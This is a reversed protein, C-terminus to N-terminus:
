RKTQFETSNLLAWLIDEFAETRNGTKKIYVRCKELERDTPKRALTRLYVMQLADDDQPFATLIRALLNSGKAQIRANVTPNNMLLLAQPISGEVEDAKTSPDFGFEEKFLGELGLRNGYPGAAPPRPGLGPGAELRGLVGVLSEWLADPGLRTPYAAAFHLHAQASDGPRVQRQYTQSNTITRFLGKMDYNSGRFGAALRVLVPAFVAEKQPGMDDVPQYFSQGLLEGWVRNVYAGAFWYNNKDVVADALAKRRERDGLNEGAAKGDLFRPQMVTSKRPDDKAPMEHEGRPRSTLEFGVLMQKGPDRMPRAQVRAFYATFEHFQERKWHDFPHDHCQACQIQIGLFIRATEAAQEETAGNGIHKALFYAAGNKGPEDFRIAGDATIMARALEDWGKNAQLQETMWADFAPVLTRSRVDTLRASMVERWYRAWHRAYEEGDLLRDIVKARKNPTKDALFDTVDAPVPLEGTLDLYVRRLFQEDTTLPAPQIKDRALEQAILDDIEAPKVPTTPVKLWADSSLIVGRPAPKAAPRAPVTDSRAGAIAWAACLGLSLVLALGSQVGRRSHGSSAM